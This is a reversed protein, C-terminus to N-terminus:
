SRQRSAAPLQFSSAPLQFSTAPLQFSTAPLQYSSAPLKSLHTERPEARHRRDPGPDGGDAGLQHFRQAVLVAYVDVRVVASSRRVAGFTPGVVEHPLM